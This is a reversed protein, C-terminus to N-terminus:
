INKPKAQQEQLRMVKRYLDLRSAKRLAMKWSTAVIADPLTVESDPDCLSVVQKGSKEYLDKLELTVFRAVSGAVWYSFDLILDNELYQSAVAMLRRKFSPNHLGEVIRIITLGDIDNVALRVREQFFVAKVGEMNATGEFTDALEAVLLLGQGRRSTPDTVLLSHSKKLASKVDFKRRRPNMVTLAVYEKTIDIIIKIDDKNKRCAHEFANSVLESYSTRFSETAEIPFELKEMKSITLGALLAAQESYSRGVKAELTCIDRQWEPSRRILELIASASKRVDESVTFRAANLFLDFM